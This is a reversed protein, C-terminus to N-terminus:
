YNIRKKYIEICKSIYNDPNFCKFYISTIKTSDYDKIENIKTLWNDMKFNDISFPLFADVTQIVQGTKYSVFPIGQALYEILVLPGSESKSTQLAFKYKKLISQINVEDHIFQIRNKLNHKKIYNQLVNFYETDNINGYIDLSLDKSQQIIKIAFLQNKIPSINSVLVAKNTKKIKTTEKKVIINELLFINNKDINLKKSAWSTLEKSVGIYFVPKLISNMLRPIKKDVKIKGYHDHFVINCKVRFLVSIIKIYRYTHRMHVHLIDYDKIIKIIKLASKLSYKKARNICILNLDKNLLKALRGKKSITLVSVDINKDHLLNSIDICVREAGGVNLTDIIQLIKM